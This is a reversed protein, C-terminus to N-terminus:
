LRFSISTPCEGRMTPPPGASSRVILPSPVERREVPRWGHTLCDLIMRAAVRGMEQAPEEFTTLPSVPEPWTINDFGVVSVDRGITLGNERLAVCAGYALYDRCAVYATPSHDSHQELCARVAKYSGTERGNESIVVSTEGFRLGAIELGRKFGKLAEAYFLRTTPNTVIAIDVHGLAALFCVAKETTKGHDVFTSTLELNEELNAIVYPFRCDDFIPVMDMVGPQEIFVAGAFDQIFDEPSLSYRTFADGQLFEFHQSKATLTEVIGQHIRKPEPHSFVDGSSKVVAVAGLRSRENMPLVRTGKGQIMEILGSSRLRGLAQSITTPSTRFEAALERHNPLCEGSAYISVHVRKRLEAYIATEVSRKRM